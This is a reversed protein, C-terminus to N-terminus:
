PPRHDPCWDRGDRTHRWGQTRLHARLERHHAVPLMWYREATCQEGDDATADCRITHIVGASM